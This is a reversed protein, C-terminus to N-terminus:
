WGLVLTLFPDVKQSGLFAPDWTGMLCKLVQVWKLEESTQVPDQFRFDSTFVELKWSGVGIQSIASFQIRFDSTKVESKRYLKWIWSGTGVEPPNFHIGPVWTRPGKCRPALHGVKM